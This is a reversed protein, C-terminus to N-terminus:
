EASSTSDTAAEHDSAPRAMMTVRPALPAVKSRGASLADRLAAAALPRLTSDEQDLALAAIQAAALLSPAESPNSDSM